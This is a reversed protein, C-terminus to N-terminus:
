WSVRLTGTGARTSSQGAFEGDFKASLSLSKALRLEAGASVLASNKAPAAGNVIFGAGPLAQFIAVLAPDSVWDHAWALKGRLTPLDDRDILIQKDFRSGLESRTDSASRANYGLAFGGANFDTEAYSPTHLTQTQIAAYPTLAAFAADIRYGAEARAGLSRTNFRAGLHDGAVAFRDTAMWHNSFTFSAALHVPGRRTVGYVGAQFADSRGGGLGQALSWNTGGGALAFGAVTDRSFRYDMGAAVSATGLTLDHSGILQPDAGTKNGGGFAAGWMTWRQEIVPPAKYLPM